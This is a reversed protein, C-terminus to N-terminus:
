EGKRNRLIDLAYYIANRTAQGSAKNKGAIDYATGHAPATRIIPLGATYIVGEGESILQFPLTGQEHHMALVADFQRYQRTAFFRTSAFPGFVNIGQDFAKSIVPNLIEREETCSTGGEDDNPNLALVAISPNTLCFDHKLSYNLIQLKEFLMTENLTRSVQSLPLHHTALGIKVREHLLMPLYTKVNFFHRIFETHGHYPFAESYLNSTCVPATILAEIKNNKLDNCASKISLVSMDTSTKTSVGLEIKVENDTLNVLNVKKTTSQEVDKIFQFILDNLELPKKHYTAVKALGYIVPTCIDLIKPDYLAKMIVEYGIGNIDGHTIGIKHLM